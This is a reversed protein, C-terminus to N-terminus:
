NTLYIDKLVVSLPNHRKKLNFWRLEQAWFVNAAKKCCVVAQKIVDDFIAVQAFCRLYCISDKLSNWLMSGHIWLLFGLYSVYLLIYLKITKIRHKACILAFLIWNNSLQTLSQSKIKLTWNTQNKFFFMQKGRKLWDSKWRGYITPYRETFNVLSILNKSYICRLHIGYLKKLITKELLTLPRYSGRTIYQFWGFLFYRCKLFWTTFYIGTSKQSERYVLLLMDCSILQIM